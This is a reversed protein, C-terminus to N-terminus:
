GRLAIALYSYSAATYAHGEGLWRRLIQLVIRALRESDAYQGRQYTVILKDTLERVTAMAKRGEEPLAAATRLAEAALRANAAEWHDAGQRRARLEALEGAPGIAEGFRGERKLRDVQQELKRARAADDGTLYREWPPKAAAQSGGSPPAPGPDQARGAAWGVLILLFAHALRGIPRM